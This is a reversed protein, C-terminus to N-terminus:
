FKFKGAEISIEGKHNTFSDGFASTNLGMNEVIKKASDLEAQQKETPTAMDIYSYVIPNRNGNQDFVVLQHLQASGDAYQTFQMHVKEGSSNAYEVALKGYKGASGQEISTVTATIGNGLDHSKNLYENKLSDRDVNGTAILTEIISSVTTAMFQNAPSKASDCTPLYLSAETDQFTTSEGRAAYIKSGTASIMGGGSQGTGITFEGFTNDSNDSLATIDSVEKIADDCTKGQLLLQGFRMNIRAQAEAVASAAAKREADEQLDYYKPVAVSALVGLIVLVALIEILTFGQRCSSHRM